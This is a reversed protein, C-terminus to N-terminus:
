IFLLKFVIYYVPAAFALSDISDMVGGRGPIIGGSDKVGASRKIASECLDGLVAAIGTVFGLILGSPVPPLRASQFAHPLLIALGVGVLASSIIGAGFGALSKNPSAEVIGRNNKGFLLGFVWALSDNVLVICLFAIILYNSLPLRNMLILWSLFASPYLIVAFGATIYNIVNDLVVGKSFVRSFLVWGAGSIICIPIFISDFGFSVFLTTSLPTLVALIAAEIKNIFLNKHKLIGALEVAGLMCFITVLVNIALHNKQPLFAVVSLLAPLGIFFILLREILKKTNM